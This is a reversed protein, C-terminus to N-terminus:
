CCDWCRSMIKDDICIQEFHNNGNITRCIKKCKDCHILEGSASRANTKWSAVVDGIDSLGLETAAQICLSEDRIDQYGGSVSRCM